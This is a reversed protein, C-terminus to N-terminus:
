PTYRVTVSPNDARYPLQSSAALVNGALNTFVFEAGSLGHVQRLVWDNLPFTSTSAALRAAIGQLQEEIQRHARRSALVANCASVAAITGLLVLTFPILMQYRLRCRM